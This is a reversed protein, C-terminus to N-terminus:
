LIQDKSCLDASQADSVVFTRSGSPLMKDIGGFHQSYFHWKIRLIEYDQSTCLMPTVTQKYM